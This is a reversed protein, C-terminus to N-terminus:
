AERAKSLEIIFQAGGGEHNEAWLRGGMREINSLSLALGLGTGHGPPKTTFFPDFLQNQHEAPIGPGHDRVSLRVTGGHESCSIVIHGKGNMADAANILLNVIVQQLLGPVGNVYPLDEPIIVSVDVLRFQNYGRVLRVTQKILEGIVFRERHAPPANRAYDLLNGIIYDIRRAEREISKLISEDVESSQIKKRIQLLELYGLIAALPNGIEHAIGSSLRGITAMKEQRIMADRASELERNVRRLEALQQRTIAQEMVLRRSMREFATGLRGLIPGTSGLLPPESATTGIRETADLLREAPRAVLRVLLAYIGLAFIAAALLILGGLLPILDDARIRAAASFLLPTAITFALAAFLLSVIAAWLALQGRLSVRPAAM